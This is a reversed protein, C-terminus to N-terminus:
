NPAPWESGLSLWRASGHARRSLSRRVVLVVAAAGILLVVILGMLALSLLFLVWPWLRRRKRERRATAVELVPVSPYALQASDLAEGKTAYRRNSPLRTHDESGHYAWEWFGGDDQWLEVRPGEAHREPPEPWLELAWESPRPPASV